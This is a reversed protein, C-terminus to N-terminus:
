YPVVKLPAECICKANLCISCINPTSISRSVGNPYMAKVFADRDGIPQGYQITQKTPPPTSYVEQKSFTPPWTVSEVHRQSMALIVLAFVGGIIPLSSKNVIAYLTSLIIILRAMSNSLLTPNGNRWHQPPYFDTYDGQWLVQPQQTWLM